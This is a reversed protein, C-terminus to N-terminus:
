NYYGSGSQFAMESSKAKSKAILTGSSSMISLGLYGLYRGVIIVRRCGKIESTETHCFSSGHGGKGIMRGKM